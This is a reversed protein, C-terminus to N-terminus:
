YQSFVKMIMELNAKTESPALGFNPSALIMTDLLGEFPKIQYVIEDPTGALVLQDVMDETVLEIM